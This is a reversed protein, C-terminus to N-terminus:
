KSFCVNGAGSLNGCMQNSSANVSGSFSQGGPIQAAWSVAGSSTNFNGGVDAIEPAGGTIHILSGSIGCSTTCGIAENLEVSYEGASWTGNIDRRSPQPVSTPQPASTPRPASNVNITVTRNDSSGDKKVSRLTYVTTSNPSVTRAEHGTVGQNNLYIATACEVDWRLTTSQGVNITTADARFNVSLQCQPQPQSITGTLKGSTTAQGQIDTAIAYLTYSGPGPQWDYGGTITRTAARSTAKNVLTNNIYLAVSSLETNGTGQYTIHVVMGSAFQFNAGPSTVAAQPPPVPVNTNIKAVLVPGFLVGAEDRLQWQGTHAGGAAPATMAILLDVTQGPAADSPVAIQTLNTMREGGVSALQYKASWTCSGANQVRWTKNFQQNPQFSTGDPVTVDAIFAANNACPGPGPTLTPVVATPVAQTPAATPAPGPASTSVVVMTDLDSAANDMNIARASVTHQGVLAIWKFPLAISKQPPDIKADGASANDVLFEVQVIGKGTDSAMVQFAIEQGVNIQGSIPTFKVMPKTAPTSCAALAVAIVLLAFVFWKVNPNKM